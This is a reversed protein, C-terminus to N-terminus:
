VAEVELGQNSKPWERIKVLINRVYACECQAPCPRFDDEHLCHEGCEDSGFAREEFIPGDHLDAFDSAYLALTGKCGHNFLLIGTELRQFNVQYGVLTVDPAMLLDERTSWEFDCNPCRKYM